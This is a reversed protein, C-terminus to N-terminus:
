SSARTDKRRAVEAAIRKTEEHDLPQDDKTPVVELALGDLRGSIFEEVANFVQNSVAASLGFWEKLWEGYDDEGLILEMAVDDGLDYYVDKNITGYATLFAVFERGREAM